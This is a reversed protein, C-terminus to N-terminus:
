DDDSVYLDLFERQNLVLCGFTLSFRRERLSKLCVASVLNHSAHVMYVSVISVQMEMM